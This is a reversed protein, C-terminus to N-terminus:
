DVIALFMEAMKEMRSRDPYVKVMTALSYLSFLLYRALEAPTFRAAIEGRAQAQALRGALLGSLDDFHERLQASVDPDRGGLEVAANLTFSGRAGDDAALTAIVEDFLGALTRRIPEPAALTEAFQRREGERYRELAAIYVERKDGFANYLSSTSIGTAAVLERVSAAEYGREWFLTMARDLTQTEDFAKTRAM